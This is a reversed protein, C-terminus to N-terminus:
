LEAQVLKTLEEVGAGMLELCMEVQDIQEPAQGVIKKLEELAKGFEALSNLVDEKPSKPTEPLPEFFHDALIQISNAM